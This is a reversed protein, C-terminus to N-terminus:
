LVAHIFESVAKRYKGPAHQKLARFFLTARVLEPTGQEKGQVTQELVARRKDQPLSKFYPKSNYIATQLMPYFEADDMDHLASADLPHESRDNQKWQPTLIKKSPLGNGASGVALNLLSQAMHQCEHYVNGPVEHKVYPGMIKWDRLTQSALLPLSLVWNKPDWSAATGPELPRIYVTVQPIPVDKPRKNAYRWGSLDMHYKRVSPDEVFDMKLDTAAPSLLAEVERWIRAPREKSERIEEFRIQM